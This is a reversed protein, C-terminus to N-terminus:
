EESFVEKCLNIIDSNSLSLCSIQWAKKLNRLEDRVLKKEVKRPRVVSNYDIESITRVKSDIKRISQIPFQSLSAYFKRSIPSYCPGLTVSLKVEPSDDNFLVVFYLVNHANDTSQDLKNLRKCDDYQSLRESIARETTKPYEFSYVRMKLHHPSDPVFLRKFIAKDKTTLKRTNMVNNYESRDSRWPEVDNLKMLTGVAHRFYHSINGVRKCLESDSSDSLNIRDSM